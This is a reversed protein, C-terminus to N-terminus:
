WGDPLSDPVKPTDPPVPPLDIRLDIGAVDTLKMLDLLTVEDLIYDKDSPSNDIARLIERMRDQAEQREINDFSM